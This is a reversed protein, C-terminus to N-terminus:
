GTEVGLGGTRIELAAVLVLVLLRRGLLLALLVPEKAALLGLLGHTPYKKRPSNPYHAITQQAKM